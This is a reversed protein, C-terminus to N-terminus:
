MAKDESGLVEVLNKPYTFRAEEGIGQLLDLCPEWEQESWTNQM